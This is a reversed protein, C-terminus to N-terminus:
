EKKDREMERERQRERVAQREKMERWRGEETEMKSVRKVRERERVRRSGRERGREVDRLEGEGRERFVQCLDRDHKKKRKKKKEWKENPPNRIFAIWDLGRSLSM